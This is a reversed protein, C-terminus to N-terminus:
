KGILKHRGWFNIPHHMNIAALEDNTYPAQYCLTSSIDRHGAMIQVQEIPIRQTNLWHYIVSQRIRIPNILKGPITAKFQEVVYSVLGPTVAHGDKTQILPEEIRKRSLASRGSLYEGLLYVQVGSLILKRGNLKLTPRVRITANPLDIDTTRLSAIEASTLANEVLLSMIIKNRTTLAPFRENRSRLQHLENGNLFTAVPLNRSRHRRVRIGSTIDEVEHGSLILFRFYKRLAIMSLKKGQERNKTAYLTSLGHCLADTSIAELPGTIEQLRSLLYTYMKATQASLGEAQLWLGFSHLM